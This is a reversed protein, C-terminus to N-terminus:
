DVPFTHIKGSFQYVNQENLRNYRTQDYISKVVVYYMVGFSERSLIREVIRFLFM